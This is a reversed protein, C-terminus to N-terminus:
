EAIEFLFFGNNFACDRISSLYEFPEYSRIEKIKGLLKRIETDDPFGEIGIEVPYPESPFKLLKQICINCLRLETLLMLTLECAKPNQVSQITGKYTNGDCIMELKVKGNIGSRFAFYRMTDVERPTFLAESIMPSVFFHYAQFPSNQGIEKRNLLMIIRRKFEQPISSGYYISEFVSASEYFKKFTSPDFLSKELKMCENFLIQLGNEFEGLDLKKLNSLPFTFELRFNKPLKLRSLNRNKGYIQRLISYSSIGETNYQGELLNDALRFNDIKPILTLNVPRGWDQFEDALLLIALLREDVESSFSPSHFAITRIVDAYKEISGEKLYSMFELAGLLGHDLEELQCEIAKEPVSLASALLDKNVALEVGSAKSTGSAINYCNRLAKTASRVSQSIRSLPYGVDHFLCSLVLKDIAESSLNFPQKQAIAVALLTVRVAHNLHDRYFKKELGRTSILIQEFDALAKGLRKVRMKGSSNCSGGLKKLILYSMLKAANGKQLQFDFTENWKEIERADSLDWNGLEMLKKDFLLSQLYSHSSPFM